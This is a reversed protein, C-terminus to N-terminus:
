EPPAEVTFVRALDRSPNEGPYGRPNCYFKGVDSATHTHGYVWAVIRPDDALAVDCAFAANTPFGVWQPAILSRKPLHHSMVVWRRGPAEDLAAGLALVAATHLRTSLETSFGKIREYDAVGLFCAAREAPPISTWFTGGFVSVDSDPFHYAQNQLYTVRQRGAAAQVLAAEGEAVTAGSYEHNGAILFVREFETELEDLLRAYAPHSPHGVDGALL